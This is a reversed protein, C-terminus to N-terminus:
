LRCLNCAMHMLFISVEVTVLNESIDVIKARFIDVLWMIQLHLLSSNLFAVREWSDSDNLRVINM